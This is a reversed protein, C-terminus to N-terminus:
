CGKFDYNVNQIFFIIKDAKVAVLKSSELVGINATGKCYTKSYRLFV